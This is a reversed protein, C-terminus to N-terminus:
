EPALCDENDEDDHEWRLSFFELSGEHQSERRFFVVRLILLTTPHLFLIDCAASDGIHTRLLIQRLFSQRRTKLTVSQVEAALHQGVNFDSSLPDLVPHKRKELASQTNGDDPKEGLFNSVKIGLEGGVTRRFDRERFALLQCFPSRRYLYDTPVKQNWGCM